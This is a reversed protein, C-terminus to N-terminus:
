KLPAAAYANEPTEYKSIIWWAHLVGPIWGLIFLLINIWFDPGCQRKYFVSAPPVFIALIYLIVDTNSSPPRAM